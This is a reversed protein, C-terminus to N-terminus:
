RASNVVFVPWPQKQGYRKLQAKNIEARTDVSSQVLVELVRIPVHLIGPWGIGLEQLAQAM